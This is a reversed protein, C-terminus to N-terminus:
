SPLRKDPNAAAEESDSLWDDVRELGVKFQDGIPRCHRVVGLTHHPGIRLRITESLSLPQDTVLGFGVGSIDVICAQLDWAKERLVQMLAPTETRIRPESRLEAVAGCLEDCRRSEKTSVATLIGNTM